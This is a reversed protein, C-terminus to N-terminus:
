LLQINEAAVRYGILEQQRKPFTGIDIVRGDKPVRTSVPM